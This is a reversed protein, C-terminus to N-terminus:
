GPPPPPQGPPPLQAPLVSLFFQVRKLNLSQAPYFRYALDALVHGSGFVQAPSDSDSGAGGKRKGLFTASGGELSASELRSFFLGRPHGVGWSEMMKISTCDAVQTLDIVLGKSVLQWICATVLGSVKQSFQQDYFGEHKKSIFVVANKYLFIDSKAQPHFDSINILQQVSVLGGTDACFDPVDLKDCPRDTPM